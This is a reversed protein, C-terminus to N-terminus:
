ASFAEGAIGQYDEQSLKQMSVLLQLQDKTWRKPYYQRAKELVNPDSGESMTAIGMMATQTIQLFDVDARLQWEDVPTRAEEEAKAQELWATYNAEIDSELGPRWPRTLIYEDYQWYSGNGEASVIEEANEHFRIEATDGIRSVSFSSVSSSGTVKM